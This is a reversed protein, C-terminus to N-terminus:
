GRRSNLASSDVALSTRYSIIGCFLFGDSQVYRMPGMKRKWVPRVCVCACVKPHVQLPCAERLENNSCQRALVSPAYPVHLELAVRAKRSKALEPSQARSCSGCVPLTEKGFPRSPTRHRSRAWSCLCRVTHNAIRLAHPVCWEPDATKTLRGFWRSPHTGMQPVLGSINDAARGRGDTAM